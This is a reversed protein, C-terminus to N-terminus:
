ECYGFVEDNKVDKERMYIGKMTLWSAMKATSFNLWLGAFFVIWEDIVRVGYCM